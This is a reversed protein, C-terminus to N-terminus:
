LTSQKKSLPFAAGSAVAARLWSSAAPSMGSLTISHHLPQIASLGASRGLDIATTSSWNVATALDSEAGGSFVSPGSWVFATSMLSIAAVLPASDGDFSLFGGM